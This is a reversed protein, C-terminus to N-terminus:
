GAALAPVEREAPPPAAPALPPGEERALNRGIWAFAVAGV